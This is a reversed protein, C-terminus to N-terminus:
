IEKVLYLTKKYDLDNVSVIEKLDDMFHQYAVILPHKLKKSEFENVIRKIEKMNVAKTISDCVIETWLEDVGIDNQLVIM